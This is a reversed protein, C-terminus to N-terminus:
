IYYSVSTGRTLLIKEKLRSALIQSQDKLLNLDCILDNLEIENIMQPLSQSIHMSPEHNHESDNEASMCLDDTNIDFQGDM